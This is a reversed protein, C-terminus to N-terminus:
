LDSSAITQQPLLSRFVAGSLATLASMLLFAAPMCDVTVAAHVFMLLFCPMGLPLVRSLCLSCEVAPFNSLVVAASLLHTLLLGRIHDELDAKLKSIEDSHKEALGAREKELETVRVTYCDLCTLLDQQLQAIQAKAKSKHQKLNSTIREIVIESEEKQAVLAAALSRQAALAAAVAADRDGLELKVAAIVAVLQQALAETDEPGITM